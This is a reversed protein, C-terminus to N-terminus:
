STGRDVPLGLRAMEALDRATPKRAVGRMWDGGLLLNFNSQLYRHHVYHHRLLTRMYRTGLFWAIPRPAEALATAYPVHLYPHVFYALVAPTVLPLLGGLAGWPGLVLWVGALFPLGPATYAFWGWPTFSAGYRSRIIARGHPTRGLEEDLAAKEADDQFQTVHDRRFTRVHHITHHTYHSEIVEKLLRPHRMWRDVTRKPADTVHEHLYSELLTACVYGIAVGGLIQLAILM